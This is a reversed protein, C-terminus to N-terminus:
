DRAKGGRVAVELSAEKGALAATIRCVHGDTGPGAMLRGAYVEAGRLDALWSAGCSVDQSTNDSFWATCTYRAALGPVIEPPGSLELRTPLTYLSLHSRTNERLYNVLDVAFPINDYWLGLLRGGNFRGEAQFDGFSRGYFLVSSGERADLSVDPAGGGLFAATGTIARLRANTFTNGSFFTVADSQISVDTSRFRNRCFVLRNHCGPPVLESKLQRVQSGPFATGDFTSDCVLCDCTGASLLYPEKTDPGAATTCRDVFVNEAGAVVLGYKANNRFTCNHFRLDWNFWIGQHSEIDVGARPNTGGFPKGADAFVTDRVTVNHSGCFSAGQRFGGRFVCDEILVECDDEALPVPHQKGFRLNLCDCGADVSTVNSIVARVVTGYLNLNHIQYEAKPRGRAYLNGDLKLDRVAMGVFGGPPQARKALETYGLVLLGYGDACPADPMSKLVTDAGEGRIEIRPYPVHIYGYVWWTGRPIYVTGGGKSALHEIADQIAKGSKTQRTVRVHLNSGTWYDVDVMTQDGDVAGFERVDVQLGWATSGPLSAAALIAGVVLSMLIRVPM